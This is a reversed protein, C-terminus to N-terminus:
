APAGLANQGRPDAGPRANGRGTAPYPSTAALATLFDTTAQVPDPAAFVAAIVAVGHAGASLLEPVHDLTVGSIAIVPLSVASAIAEIGSPGMPEPLGRKTSSVYVPGCGVYTAGAVEARRADDPNRCTAGIVAGPGLMGRVVEVPLDDHGVHVGDADVALALDARDDIICTAGSRRCRARIRRAIALRDRDTRDKLRVQVVPAGADLVADIAGLADVTIDSPTILHLRGITLVAVM